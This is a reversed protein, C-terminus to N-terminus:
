ACGDCRRQRREILVGCACYRYDDTPRVPYRAGPVQRAARERDQRLQVALVHSCQGRYAFGRCTCGSGDAATWHAVGKSGPIVFFPRGSAKSRGTLWREPEAALREANAQQSLTPTVITAHM